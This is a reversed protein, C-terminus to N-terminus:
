KFREQRELLAAASQKVIPDTSNQNRLAIGKWRSDHLRALVTLSRSRVSADMSDILGEAYHIAELRYKTKNLQGLILLGFREQEINKSSFLGQVTSWQSETLAGGSAVRDHIYNVELAERPSVHMAKSRELVFTPINPFMVAHIKFAGLVFLFGAALPVVLKVKTNGHVLKNQM